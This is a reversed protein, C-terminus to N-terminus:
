GDWTGGLAVLALYANTKKTQAISYGRGGKKQTSHFWDLTLKIHSIAAPVDPVPSGVFTAPRTTACVVAVARLAKPAFTTM